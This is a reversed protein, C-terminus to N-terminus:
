LRVLDWSHASQHGGHLLVLPPAGPDGWELFHFRLQRLVINRSRYPVDPAHPIGLDAASALLLRFEDTRTMDLPQVTEAFANMYMPPEPDTYGAREAPRALM